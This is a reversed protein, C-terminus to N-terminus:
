AFIKQASLKKTHTLYHPRWLLLHLPQMDM